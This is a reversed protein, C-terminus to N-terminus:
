QVEFINNEMYNNEPLSDRSWREDWVKIIGARKSKRILWFGYFCIILWVGVGIFDGYSVEATIVGDETVGSAASLAVIDHLTHLIITFWLNGTRIYISAFVVGISFASFIQFITSEINAGLFINTAHALGFCLSSIIVAKPIGKEDKWKRMLTSVFIGRFGMEEFFGAFVATSIILVTPARFDEPFFILSPISVLALYGLYFLCIRFGEAINKSSLMGKFEPRFWRKFLFMGFIAGIVAGIFGSDLPYEEFFMNIPLNIALAVLEGLFIYLILSLIASLVPVKNTIKHKRQKKIKLVEM